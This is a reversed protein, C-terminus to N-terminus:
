KLLQEKQQFAGELEKTRCHLQLNTQYAYQIHEQAIMDKTRMLEKEEQLRCIMAADIEKARKSEEQAEKLQQELQQVQQQLVREKTLSVELAKEM